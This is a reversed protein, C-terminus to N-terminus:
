RSRISKDAVIVLRGHLDHELVRLLRRRVFEFVAKRGNSGPRFLVIGPYERPPYVRIDGIGKDLTLLVRSESRARDLIVPDSAGVLGEDYVSEAEHGAGRLEAVIETPLNEDIKFRM